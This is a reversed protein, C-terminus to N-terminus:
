FKEDPFIFKAAQVVDKDGRGSMNCIVIQDKRMTPAVKTLHAIAHSSELAPIIGELRSLDTELGDLTLANLAKGVLTLPGPPENPLPTETQEKPRIYRPNVM